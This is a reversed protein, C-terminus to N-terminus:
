PVLARGIALWIPMTVLSVASTSLAILTATPPHGGFHRAILIPFIASPMAAHLMLVRRLEVSAGDGPMWSGILGSAGLGVALGLFMLPLVGLRLGCGVVMMKGLGGGGRPREGSSRRLGSLEDTMSAGILLLAVPVACNALWGVVNGILDNAGPWWSKADTFHLTLAAVVAISPANIVRRLGSWGVSGSVVMIGITWLAFEVGVNNVFLVGLAPAGQGYLSEVLPIPLYGYNHLGVALAFTRRAAPSHLGIKPGLWWAVTGCVALSLVTTGFGVIPPLWVNNAQDLAPNGVISRLILCPVFVNVVIRLLSADAAETLWDRRRLFAGIGVVGFVGLTASLVGLWGDM